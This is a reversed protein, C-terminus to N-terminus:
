YTLPITKQEGPEFFSTTPAIVTFRLQVARSSVRHESSPAASMPMAAGPAMVRADAVLAARVRLWVASQAPVSLAYRCTGDQATEPHTRGILHNDLADRAEVVLEGCSPSRQGATADRIAIPGQALAIERASVARPSLVVAAIALAALCAASRVLRRSRVPM